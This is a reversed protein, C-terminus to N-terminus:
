EREQIQEDSFSSGSQQNEFIELALCFHMYNPIKEVGESLAYYQVFDVFKLDNEDAKQENFKKSYKVIDFYSNMNKYQEEFLKEAEDEFIDAYKASEPATKMKALTKVRANALFTKKSQKQNAESVAFYNKYLEVIKKLKKEPSILPNVIIGSIIHDIDYIKNM